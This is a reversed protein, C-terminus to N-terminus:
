ASVGGQVNNADTAHALVHVQAHITIKSTPNQLKLMKLLIAIIFAGIFTFITLKKM